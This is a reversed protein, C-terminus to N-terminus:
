LKYSPVEGVVPEDTVKVAALISKTAFSGAPSQPSRTEARIEMRAEGADAIRSLLALVSGMWWLSLAAGASVYAWLFNGSREVAARAIQVADASAPVSGAAMGQVFSVVAMLTAIFALAKFIIAVLPEESGTKM